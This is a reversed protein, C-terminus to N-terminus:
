ARKELVSKVFPVTLRRQAALAAQDLEDLLAFLAASSREVRRLLFEGTEDPLDLGRWRSRLQLAALRDADNMAQLKWTPGSALRSALDRLDFPVENAPAAATVLLRGNNNRLGEFVSFLAREWEGDGAIADVDDVCLLDLGGMGELMGPSLGEGAALPLWACVAGTTTAAAVAAQLLHSRGSGEAGWIWAVQQGTETAVRSVAHLAVKNSGPFFTDFVAFDALKLDLALQQM